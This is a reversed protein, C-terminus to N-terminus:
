TKILKKVVAYPNRVPAQTNGGFSGTITTGAPGINYGQYTGGSFYATTSTMYNDVHTHALMESTTLPHYEQGGIEALTKATMTHTITCSGTGSLTIDPAETQALVLTTALRIRTASIRVVYYTPGATATTTFGSLASLVVPMGTVWKFNNSLVDFGNSGSTTSTEVTTGTGEGITDRDRLDPVNFNGGSGGWTFAIAAFLTPYALTTYSAGDCALWGAPAVPGAYDIIMGSPVLPLVTNSVFATTAIQTSITGVPQTVATSGSALDLAPVSTSWSPVGSGNTILLSSNVPALGSVTNSASAYLLQNIGLTDPYTSTSNLINTGDSRLITGSTGATTKGNFVPWVLSNVDNLWATPVTTVKDIFTTSAM